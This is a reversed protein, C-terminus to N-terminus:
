LERKKEMGEKIFPEASAYGDANVDERKVVVLIAGFFIKLDTIFSCTDVYEIDNAFKNDWSQNNRGRISALGVIGPRIEQRRIQYDDYYMQYNVPLPRPGIISMEGKLINIIQPLEDISLKRLTSGYSTLRKEDPLYNGNEDREDTMTRFKYMIFPIGDKGARQQKFFVPYGLKKASIFYVVVIVPSTIVLGIASLILDIIRKIYRKYIM